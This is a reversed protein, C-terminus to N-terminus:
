IHNLYYVHLIHWMYHLINTFFKFTLSVGYPGLKHATKQWALLEDYVIWPSLSKGICSILGRESEDQLSKAIHLCEPLSVM